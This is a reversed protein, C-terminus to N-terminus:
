TTAREIGTSILFQIFAGQPVVVINGQQYQKIGENVLAIYKARDKTANFIAKMLSQVAPGRSSGQRQEERLFNISNGSVYGQGEVYVPGIAQLIGDVARPTVIVVIDTKVGTNYEVIEQALRAGKETDAEWLSDHLLWRSVGQARLAAPPEATPHAMNHPYVATVNTINGNNLTLIFAMDVAGIGPRPESPDACLLLVHKEGIFVNQSNTIYNEYTLVSLGIIVIFLGLIIKNKTDM